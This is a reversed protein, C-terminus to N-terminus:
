FIVERNELNPFTLTEVAPSVATNPTPTQKGLIRDVMSKDTKKTM